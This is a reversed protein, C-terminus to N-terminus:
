SLSRLLNMAIHEFPRHPRADDASKALEAIAELHLQRCRLFFLPLPLVLRCRTALEEGQKMM